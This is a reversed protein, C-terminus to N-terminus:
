AVPSGMMGGQPSYFGNANWPKAGSINWGFGNDNSSSGASPYGFDWLNANTKSEPGGFWGGAGPATLQQLGKGVAFGGATTLVNGFAAAIPNPKAAETAAAMDRQFQMQNENAVTQIRQQPTIFMSTVDMTPSTMTGKVTAMWRSTSDLAKTSLDLSTLGLDRATLNRGAQSGGFGGYLAKAASTRQVSEAVDKPIEGRLQSLLNDSVQTQISEIDPVVSKLQSMLQAQNFLNTKSALKEAAPLVDVNQAVAKRQEGAIDVRKLEPVKVKKGGGLLGGLLSGGLGAALLPLAM